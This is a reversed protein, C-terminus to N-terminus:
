DIRTYKYRPTSLSQGVDLDLVEKEFDWRAAEPLNYLFPIDERYPDLDSFVLDEETYLKDKVSWRM